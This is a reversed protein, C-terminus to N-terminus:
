DNLEVIGKLNEIEMEKLYRWEGPELNQDLTLSGYQTRKLKLIEWNMIKCIRRIERNRGETLKWQSESINSQNNFGQLSIEIPSTKRGDLYVGEKLLQEDEKTVEGKMKVEYIRPVEFSPHTLCHTLDGDNTLILLGESNYDLRGVPYIRQEINIYDTVVTRGKEDSLSTIVSRPKNFQIYVKKEAGELYEGDVYVEDDNEVVYGPEFVVTSNVEVEGRKILDSAERRSCYGCHAIYKNLRKGM